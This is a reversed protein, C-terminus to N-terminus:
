GHASSPATDEPATVFPDRYNSLHGAQIGIRDASWFKSCLRLHLNQRVMIVEAMPAKGLHGSFGGQLVGVIGRSAIFAWTDLRRAWV